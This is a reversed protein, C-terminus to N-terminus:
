FTYGMDFWYRPFARQDSPQTEGIPTAWELKAFFKSPLNLQVGFGAGYFNRFVKDTKAIDHNWGGAADLFGTVQLIEGWKRNKFAPARKDAFGPANLIYDLSVFYGYDFVDESIQYARVSDPGGIAFQELPVLLDPSYQGM